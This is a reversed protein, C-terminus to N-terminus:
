DHTPAPVVGASLASAPPEWRGLCGTDGRITVRSGEDEHIALVLRCHAKWYSTAVESRPRVRRFPPFWRPLWRSHLRPVGPGSRGAFSFGLLWDELHSGAVAQKSPLNNM